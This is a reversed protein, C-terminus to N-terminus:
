SPDGIRVVGREYALIVAQVRDRLDLKMLVHAVHTKVTAESVYLAAAIEANSMGRAMLVLVETERATLSRLATRDAEARPRDEEQSASQELLRGILRRTVTPGLLADGRAVIRVAQVLEDRPVDKLLFGSAGAQLAALVYEDLDFTTLVLVRPQHRDSRTIRRTAEIGDLEPMRVDMLVVDPHLEEALEVAERGDAAEGLVRIDGHADLITRFGTRVVPQDDAVLVTIDTM